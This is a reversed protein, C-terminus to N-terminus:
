VFGLNFVSRKEYVGIVDLGKNILIVVYLSAYFGHAKVNCLGALANANGRNLVNDLGAYLYLAGAALEGANYGLHVGNTGALGMDQAAHRDDSGAGDNAELLADDIHGAGTRLVSREGLEKVEYHDAGLNLTHMLVLILMGHTDGAQTGGGKDTLEAAVHGGVLGLLKFGETDAFTKFLVGIQGANAIDMHQLALAQQVVGINVAYIGLAGQGGDNVGSLRHVASDYATVANGGAILVGGIMMLIVGDNGIQELLM